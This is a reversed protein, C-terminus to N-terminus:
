PQKTIVPNFLIWPFRYEDAGIDCGLEANWGPRADGDIDDYPAYREYGGGWYIEGCIGKNKAPSTGTLHYNANLVPNKHINNYGHYSSTVGDNQVVGIMSYYSNVATTSTDYQNIYIDSNNNGWVITNTLEAIIQASGSSSFLIGGAPYTALNNSVTNNTLSLNMTGTGGAAFYIAGGSQDAQNDALINNTLTANLTAGSTYLYVAGGNAAYNEVIKNNTLTVEATSGGDAYVYVGAGPSAGKYNDRIINDHLTVTMDSDTIAALFIGSGEFSVVRCHEIALDLLSGSDLSANLGHYQEDTTRQLTLYALRLGVIHWLKPAVYIIQTGEPSLRTGAPDHSQVTFDANWGGEITLRGSRSAPLDIDYIIIQETYDGQAVKITTTAYDHAKTVATAINKCPNVTSTGCPWDTLGDSRVYLVPYSTATAIQHQLTVVLALVLILAKMCVGGNTYFQYKRNGSGRLFCGKEPALVFWAEM